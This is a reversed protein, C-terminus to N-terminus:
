INRKKKTFCHTLRTTATDTHRDTHQGRRMFNIELGRMLGSIVRYTGLGRMPGGGKLHSGDDLGSVNQNSHTGFQGPFARFVLLHEPVSM